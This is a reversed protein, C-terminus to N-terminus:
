ILQPASCPIIVLNEGFETEERYDGEEIMERILFAYCNISTGRRSDYTTEKFTILPILASQKQIKM